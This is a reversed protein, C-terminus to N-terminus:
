IYPSYKKIVSKIATEVPDTAWAGVEIFWSTDWICIVEIDPDLQVGFSLREDEYISWVDEVDPARFFRFRGRLSPCRDYLRSHFDAGFGQYRIGATLEDEPVFPVGPNLLFPLVTV